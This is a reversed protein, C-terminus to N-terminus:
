VGPSICCGQRVGRQIEVERVGDMSEREIRRVIQTGNMFLKGVYGLLRKTKGEGFNLLEEEENMLIKANKGSKKCRIRKM